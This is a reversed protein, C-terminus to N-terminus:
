NQESRVTARGVSLLKNMEDAKGVVRALSTFTIASMKVPRGGPIMLTVSGNQHVELVVGRFKYRRDMSVETEDEYPKRGTAKKKAPAYKSRSARVRVGEPAPGWSLNTLHNNQKDDDAHLPIYGDAPVPGEFAELVMKDIRMSTNGSPSTGKLSVVLLPSNPAQRPKLMKKTSLNCVLGTSSVEYIGEVVAPNIVPAWRVETSAGNAEVPPVTYYEQVPHVAAM